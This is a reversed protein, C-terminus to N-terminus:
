VVLGGRDHYLRNLTTFAAVIFRCLYFLIFLYLIYPIQLALDLNKALDSHPKITTDDSLIAIVSSLINSIMFFCYLKVDCDKYM